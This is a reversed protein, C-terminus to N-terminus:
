HGFAQLNNRHYLGCIKEDYDWRQNKYPYIIDYIFIFFLPCVMNKIKYHCFLDVLSGLLLLHTYRCSVVNKSIVVLELETDFGYLCSPTCILLPHLLFQRRSKAPRLDFLNDNEFRLPAANGCSSHWFCNTISIPFCCKRFHQFFCQPRYQLDVSLFHSTRIPNTKKSSVIRFFIVRHTRMM